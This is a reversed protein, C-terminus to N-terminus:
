RAPCAAPARRAPADRRAPAPATVPGVHAAVSIVPCDAGVVHRRPAPGALDDLHRRTPQMRDAAGAQDEAPGQAQGWHGQQIRPVPAPGVVAILVPRQAPDTERQGVRRGSAPPRGSSSCLSHVLGRGPWVLGDVRGSPSSSGAAQHALWGGPRRGVTASCEGRLDRGGVRTRTRRPMAARRSARTTASPVIAAGRGSGRGAPILSVGGRVAGSDLVDIFGFIDPSNV